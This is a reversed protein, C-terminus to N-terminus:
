LLRKKKYQKYLRKDEEKSIFWIVIYSICFVIIFDVTFFVIKSVTVVLSSPEVFTAYGYITSLYTLIAIMLLSENVYLYVFLSFIFAIIISFIAIRMDILKHYEYTKKSKIKKRKAEVM